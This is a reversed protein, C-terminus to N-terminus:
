KIEYKKENEDDADQLCQTICRFIQIKYELTKDEATQTQISKRKWNKNTAM